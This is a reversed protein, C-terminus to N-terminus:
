DAHRRKLALSAATPCNQGLVQVGQLMLHTLIAIRLKETARCPLRFLMMKYWLCLCLLVTADDIDVLSCKFGSIHYRSLSVTDVYSGSM